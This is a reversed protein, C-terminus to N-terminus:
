SGPITEGRAKIFPPKGKDVLGLRIKFAFSEEKDAVMAKANELAKKLREICMYEPSQNSFWPHENLPTCHPCKRIQGGAKDPYYEGAQEGCQKCFLIISLDDTRGIAVKREEGVFDGM